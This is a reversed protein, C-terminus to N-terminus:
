KKSKNEGCTFVEKKYEGILYLSGAMIINKGTSKAYEIGDSISEFYYSNDFKAAYKKYLEKASSGRNGEHIPLFVVSSSIESFINIIEAVDKDKLISTLLIVENRNFLTKITEKLKLASDINHAGDIIFLKDNEIKIIEFRGPWYCNKIGNKIIEKSIKLEKLCIYAAMFNEIQHKGFLPITYKESDVDVITKINEKDLYGSYEYESTIVIKKTKKRFIDIVNNKNESTILLKGEKIIGAKEEAIKEITNGLYATHDLTVNTIITIEPTVINTADFRGGMGTELVVFDAKKDYFYLFMMATTIEFFTPKINIKKSVKEVIDFYKAVDLDSIMENNYQIRENFKVLHPSSYKGVNFGAEKLVAELMTAVSGKGNTGAIHIIKFNNEPNNLEHMIKKMNELGLKIGFMSYSYLRDLTLDIEM